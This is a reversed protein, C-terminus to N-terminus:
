STNHEKGVGQLFERPRKAASPGSGFAYHTRKAEGATKQSSPFQKIGYPALSSEM